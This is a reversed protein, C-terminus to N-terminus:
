SLDGVTAHFLTIMAKLNNRSEHKDIIRGNRYETLTYVSTNKNFMLVVDKYKRILETESEQMQKNARKISSKM